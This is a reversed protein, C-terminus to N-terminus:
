DFQIVKRFNILFKILVIRFNINFLFLNPNHIFFKILIINFQPFLTFFQSFHDFIQRVLAIKLLNDPGILLQLSFIQFKPPLDFFKSVLEPILNPITSTPNNLNLTQRRLPNRMRRILDINQLLIDGFQLLLILLISGETLVTWEQSTWILVWGM